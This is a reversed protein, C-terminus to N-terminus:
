IASKVNLSGKERISPGGDTEYGKVELSIPNNNNNIIFLRYLM